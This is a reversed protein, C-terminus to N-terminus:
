IHQQALNLAFFQNGDPYFGMKMSFMNESVDELGKQMHNPVIYYILGFRNRKQKIEKYGILVIKFVNNLLQTVIWYMICLADKKHNETVGNLEWYIIIIRM